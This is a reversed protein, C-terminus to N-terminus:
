SFFDLEQKVRKISKKRHFIKNVEKKYIVNNSPSNCFTCTYPCGRQTEVGVARWIKGQMPRYISGPDLLDWDPIPVDDMNMAMGIKNHFVKGDGKVSFNQVNDIRDGTALRKCMEILALEGEGRCIYDVNEDKIIKQAAYTPFVGGFITKYTKGKKPVGKLLNISLLYTSELASVLIIDPQFDQVKKTFDERLRTKPKKGVKKFWDSRDYSAANRKKVREGIEDKQNISGLLNIHDIDEYYTCDFVDITYGERKLLATFIGVVQPMLATMQLNPYLILIKFDKPARPTFPSKLM